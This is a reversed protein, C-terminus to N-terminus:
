LSDEATSMVAAHTQTGRANLISERETPRNSDEVKTSRSSNLDSHRFGGVNRGPNTRVNRLGPARVRARAPRLGVDRDDPSTLALSDDM